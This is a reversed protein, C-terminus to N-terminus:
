GAKIDIVPRGGPGRRPLPKWAHGYVVEFTAPLRGESRFDEYRRELAALTGEQKTWSALVLLAVPAAGLVGRSSDGRELLALAGLALLLLPAEAYGAYLPTRWFPLLAVFAAALLRFPM